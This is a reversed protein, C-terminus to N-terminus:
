NANKPLILKVVLICKVTVVSDGLPQTHLLMIIVKAFIDGKLWYSKDSGVEPMPTEKQAATFTNDKGESEKRSLSDEEEEEEDRLKMEDEKSPDFRM